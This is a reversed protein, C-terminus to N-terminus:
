PEIAFKDLISNLETAEKGKALELLEGVKDIFETESDVGKAHPLLVNLDDSNKCVKLKILFRRKYDDLTPEKQTEMPPADIDEDAVLGLAAVLAYRKMYTIWAGVKKADANIPVQIGSAYTKSEGSEHLIEITIQGDVIPQSVYLGHKFLIPKIKGIIEKLPAYKFSVTATAKGTSTLNIKPVENQFKVLASNIKNDM